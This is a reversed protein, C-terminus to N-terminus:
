NKSKDKKAEIFISVIIHRLQPSDVILRRSGDFDM